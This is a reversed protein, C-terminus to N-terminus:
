FFSLCDDDGDEDDGDHVSFIKKKINVTNICMFVCVTYDKQKSLFM